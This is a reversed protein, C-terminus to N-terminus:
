TFWTGVSVPPRSALVETLEVPSVEDGLQRRIECRGQDRPRDTIVLQDVLKEGLESVGDRHVEEQRAHRGGAAADGDSDDDDGTEFSPLSAWSCM